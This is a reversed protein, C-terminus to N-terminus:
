RTKRLPGMPGPKRLAVAPESAPIFLHFATRPLRNFDLTVDM